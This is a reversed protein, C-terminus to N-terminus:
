TAAVPVHLTIRTGNVDLRGGHADVIERILTLVLGDADIVRPEVLHPQTTTPLGPGDDYISIAVMEPVNPAHEVHVRITGGFAAPHVGGLYRLADGALTAVCWALKNRDISVPPVEGCEDVRLEVNQRAAHRALPELSSTLLAIVDTPQCHLAIASADSM